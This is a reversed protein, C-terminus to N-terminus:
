PTALANLGPEAAYIELTTFIEGGVYRNGM